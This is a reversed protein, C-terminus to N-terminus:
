VLELGDAAGEDLSKDQFTAFLNDVVQAHTGVSVRQLGPVADTAQVNRVLALSSQPQPEIPEAAANADGLGKHDTPLNLLSVPMDHGGPTRRPLPQLSGFLGDTAGFITAPADTVGATFFLTNPDGAKGGNGFRLAWLNEITIPREAADTLTEVFHGDSTFANIRGNGFNGILLDGGLDGFGSPARAIGWPSNFHGDGKITRLLQGDRTFEAVFGDTGTDAGTAPDFQAYTVFIDGNIDQVNFPRFGNPIATDQFATQDIRQFTADFVEVQGKGWDAAYLLPAQGNTSDIALGTFVAGSETVKIVANHLNVGPNWASITGDLTDFLFIASTSDMGATVDFGSGATNFVTGTPTPHTFASGPAIPINVVLGQKVGQGNYLTSVGVQNDAVWFPSTSSSALGWPNILQNDTFAALRPIDSVLNTQLFDVSM